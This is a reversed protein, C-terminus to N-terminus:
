EALWAELWEREAALAGSRHPFPGLRPGGTPSLDAWWRGQEDPEVHSARTIHTHGLAALNIGEDYLCTITGSAAVHLDM